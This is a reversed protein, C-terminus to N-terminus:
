LWGGALIALVISALFLTELVMLIVPKWGVMTLDKIRTKVGIAAIAAVLAWRSAEQGAAAVPRPMLGLSNAAVLALFGIMFVPLLPPREAAEEGGEAARSRVLLGTALIVPLLMSVRLLKVITARDGAETSVAYGAGVVQAVDHITAGIFTGAQIDDLGAWRSIAPYLIMALTSLSSVGMVTFLTAREKLPHAPLAASLALAASAGCIATAGGSLLGFLANFGMWRAVLISALITVTLTGVVLLVPPWGLAVMQGLTIRCGLLAV